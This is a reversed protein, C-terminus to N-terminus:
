WILADAADKATKGGKSLIPLFADFVAEGARGLLDGIAARDAPGPAFWDDVLRQAVFPSRRAMAGIADRSADAPEGKGAALVARFAEYAALSAEGLRGYARISLASLRPKAAAAATGLALVDRWAESTSPAKWRELAAIARAARGPDGERL